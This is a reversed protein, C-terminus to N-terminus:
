GKLCWDWLITMVMKYSQRKFLSSELLMGISLGSLLSSKSGPNLEIDGSQIIYLTYLYLSFLYNLQIFFNISYIISNTHLYNTHLRFEAIINAVSELFKNYLSKSFM